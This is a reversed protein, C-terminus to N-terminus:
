RLERPLDLELDVDVFSSFLSGLEGLGARGVPRVGGAPYGGLALQTRLHAMGSSVCRLTFSANTLPHLSVEFSIYKASVNSCFERCKLGCISTKSPTM